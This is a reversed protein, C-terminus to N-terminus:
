FQLDLRTISISDSIWTLSSRIYLPFLEPELRNIISLSIVGHTRELIETSLVHTSSLVTASSSPCTM